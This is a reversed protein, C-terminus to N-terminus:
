MSFNCSECVHAKHQGRGTTTPHEYTCLREHTQRYKSIVDLILELKQSVYSRDHNKKRYDFPLRKISATHLSFSRCQNKQRYNNTLGKIGGRPLTHHRKRYDYTLGKNTVNAHYLWQGHHKQRHNHTLQEISAKSLCHDVTTGSTSIVLWEKSELMLSAYHGAKMISAIIVPWGKSELKVSVYHDIM